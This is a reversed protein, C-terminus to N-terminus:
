KSRVRQRNHYHIYLDLHNQLREAKKTSCLSKRSLRSIDNRLKRISLDIKKNEGLTVVEVNNGCVEKATKIQARYGDCGLTTYVRNFAKQTELLFDVLATEKDTQANWERIKNQSMALARIDTKHVKAAILEGTKARASLYVGLPRKKTHEFTELADFQVYTTVIGKEELNKLNASRAKYAGRLFYKNVTKRDVKLVRAIGRLSMRECYMAEIKKALKQKKLRYTPSNTRKTQTKGCAKCQFRQVAGTKSKYSGRKRLDKSRCHNCNKM